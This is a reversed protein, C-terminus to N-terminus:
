YLPSQTQEYITQVLSKTMDLYLYPVSNNNGSLSGDYGYFKGDINLLNQLRKCMRRAKRANDCDEIPPIVTSRAPELQTSHIWDNFSNIFIADVRPKLLNAEQFRSKYYYLTLGSTNDVAFRKQTADTNWPRIKSDDYGPSVSPIFHKGHDHAFSRMQQWHSSNSGYSHSDTAFFTFFGDYGQSLAKEGCDKNVWSAIYIADHKGDRLSKRHPRHQRLLLSDMNVSHADYIFFLKSFSEYKSYANLLYDVADYIRQATRGVFDEIMFCVRQGKDQAVELLLKINADVHARHNLDTIIGVNLKRADETSISWPVVLVEIGARVTDEVQSEIVFRDKSSYIGRLPYFRSGIDDPPRYQVGRPFDKQVTRDFHELVAHNWHHYTGDNMPTGYNLLFLAHVKPLENSTIVHSKLSGGNNSHVEFEIKVEDSSLVTPIFLAAFAWLFNIVM